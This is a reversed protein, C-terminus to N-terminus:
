SLMPTLTRQDAVLTNVGRIRTFHGFFFEGDKVDIGLSDLRGSVIEFLMFHIAEHNTKPNHFGRNAVLTTKITAGLRLSSRACTLCIPQAVAARWCSSRWLILMTSCLHERPIGFSAHRQPRLLSPSAARRQMPWDACLPIPRLSGSPSDVAAKVFPINALGLALFIVMVTVVHRCASRRDQRM